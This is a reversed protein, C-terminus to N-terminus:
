PNGTTKNHLILVSMSLCGLLSKRKIEEQIEIERQKEFDALFAEVKAKKRRESEPDKVHSGGRMEYAGRNLYPKAEAYAARAGIKLLSTGYKYKFVYQGKGKDVSVTVPWYFQGWPNVMAYSNLISDSVEAVIDLEGKGWGDSNKNWFEHYERESVVYPDSLCGSQQGDRPSVQILKWYELPMIEQVRRLFPRMDELWNAESVVTNIKLKKIGSEKAMRCVELYDEESMIRGKTRRGSLDLTAPNVSDISIALMDLQNVGDAEFQRLAQIGKQLIISGNTIISTTITPNTAKAVKVKDAIYPYMFPEGGAFNIKEFGLEVLERTVRLGDERPLYHRSPVEGVDAYTAFCFDCRMNCSDLPHDNVVKVILPEKEHEPEGEGCSPRHHEM